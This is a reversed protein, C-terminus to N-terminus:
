KGQMDIHRFPETPLVEYAIASVGIDDSGDCRYQMVIKGTKKVMIGDTFITPRTGPEHVDGKITREFIIYEFNENIFRLHTEGGGAYATSSLQFHRGQPSPENPFQFEMKSKTGFRYQVYGKEKTLPKSACVSIIRQKVMCNFLPQEEETCLTAAMSVNTVTFVTLTLIRRATVMTSPKM